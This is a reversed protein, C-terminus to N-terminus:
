DLNVEGSFSEASNMRNLTNMLQQHENSYLYIDEPLKDMNSRWRQLDAPSISLIQEVCSNVDSVNVCVGLGKEAVVRGDETGLRAILPKKYFCAEYFRNTKAWMWNGVREGVYTFCVWVIDVCGYLQSLDGPSVYPGGYELWPNGKIESEIDTVEGMPVGRLYIRVFGRGQKAVAKLIDLSRQCRISGFYGIRLGDNPQEAGSSIALAPTKRSLKNEIVMYPLQTLGQINEYYGTVFAKSTVVLLSIKRILIREMWRLVRSKLRDGALIPLIDCVEFVIKPKRRLGFTALCYFLLMDLGFVYAVDPGKRLRSRAIPIAKLFVLLRRLYHRHEIKALLVCPCNYKRGELLSPREFALIEAEAGLQCLTSVLKHYHADTKNPILFAIKM